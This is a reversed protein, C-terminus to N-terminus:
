KPFIFLDLVELSTLIELIYYFVFDSICLFLFMHSFFIHGTTLGLILLIFKLVPM